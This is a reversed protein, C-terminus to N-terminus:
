RPATTATTAPRANYYAIFEKTVDAKEDVQVLLIGAEYLKSSDLIVSYGKQKAFDELAKGIDQSIPGLLQARRNQFRSQGDEEKRKIDRQLQEAQEIKAQVSEPKIPSNPKSAQERLTEIEKRLTEFRNVLGELETQVPKFETELSTLANVYKTIGAKDGFAATNIIVIKGTGGTTAPATQAFASIAFLASFVFAAAISRIIKM